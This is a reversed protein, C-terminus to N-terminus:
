KVRVNDARLAHATTVPTLTLPQPQTVRASKATPLAAESPLLTGPRVPVVYRKCRRRSERACTTNLVPWTRERRRPAPLPLVLGEDAASSPQLSRGVCTGEAARRGYGTTPRLGTAKRRRREVPKGKDSRDETTENLSDAADAPVTTAPRVLKALASCAPRGQTAPAVAAGLLRNSVGGRLRQGTSHGQRAGKLSM